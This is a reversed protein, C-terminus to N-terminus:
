RKLAAQWDLVVDIITGEDPRVPVSILFRGDPGVEYQDYDWDVVRGTKFLPRPPGAEFRGKEGIAVAMLTSDLGLYFLERGGHHWRPQAGGQASVQWRQGTPPIPVVFVEPQGREISHYALWRGDPSFRLEDPFGQEALIHEAPGKGQLSVLAGASGSEGAIGFALYAGDPSWDEVFVDGSRREVLVREPGGDVPKAVLAVGGPRGRATFALWRGDPSWVPDNLWPGDAALRSTVGRVIDTILIPHADDTSPAAIAVRTGDPSLDFNEISGAAGVTGFPRGQRDYWTLQKTFGAEGARVALVNGGVGFVPGFGTGPNVVRGLSAPQGLLKLSGPDFAQAMLEGRRALVLVDPPAYDFRSTQVGLCRRGPRDLSSVCVDDRGAVLWGNSYLFSSTAPLFRPANHFYEGAATQLETVPQAEGGSAPVRFV